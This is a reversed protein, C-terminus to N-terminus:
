TATADTFHVCSAFPSPRHPRQIETMAAKNQQLRRGGDMNFHALGPHLCGTVHAPTKQASPIVPTLLM